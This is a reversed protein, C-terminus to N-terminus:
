LRDKRGHLGESKEGRDESGSRGGGVADDSLHGDVTLDEATGPNALAVWLADDALDARARGNLTGVIRGNVTTRIGPRSGEDSVGLGTSCQSERPAIATSAVPRMVGTGGQCVHGGAASDGAVLEIRGLGFPELDALFTALGVALPGLLIDHITARGMSLDRGVERWSVVEDAVLDDTKVDGLFLSTGFEVGGTGLDFDATVSVAPGIGRLEDGEWAGVVVIVATNNAVEEVGGSCVVERARSDDRQDSAAVGIGVGDGVGAVRGGSAGVVGGGGGSLVVIVVVGGLACVAIASGGGFGGRSGGGRAGGLGLGLGGIAGAGLLGVAGADTGGRGGRGRPGLLALLVVGVDGAGKGADETAVVRDGLGDLPRERSV